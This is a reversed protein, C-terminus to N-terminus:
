RYGSSGPTRWVWRRQAKFYPGIRGVCKGRFPKTCSLNSHIHMESVFCLVMKGTDKKRLERLVNLEQNKNKQKQKKKKKEFFTVIVIKIMEEITVISESCLVWM